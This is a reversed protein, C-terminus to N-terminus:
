AKKVRKIPPVAGGSQALPPAPPPPKSPRAAAKAPPPPGSSARDAAFLQTTRKAGKTTIRQSAVARRVAPLWDAKDIRLAARVTESRAGENTAVYAAIRGAVADLDAPSRRTRGRVQVQKKPPAKAVRAPERRAGNRAARAIGAALDGGLSGLSAGLSAALSARVDEYATRHFLDTLDDVFQDIRARIPDNQMHGTGM